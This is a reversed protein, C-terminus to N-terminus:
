YGDRIRRRAKEHQTPPDQRREWIARERETLSDFAVQCAGKCRPCVNTGDCNDCPGDLGDYHFACKGIGDCELCEIMQESAAKPVCSCQVQQCTPCIGTAWFTGGNIARPAIKAHMPLLEGKM